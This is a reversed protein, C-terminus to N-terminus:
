IPLERQLDASGAPGGVLLEPGLDARLQVGRLMVPRNSEDIEIEGVVGRLRRTFTNRGVPRHDNHECWRAYVSYVSQFEQECEPGSECCLRVFAKMPSSAREMSEQIRRSRETMELAPKPMSWLDAYGTLGWVCIGQRELPLRARLGRDEAGTDRFIRVMKYVVLRGAFAGSNDLLKDPEDNCFIHFRLPIKIQTDAVRYMDRVAVRSQGSICKLHEVAISGEKLEGVHADPLLGVSKGVLPKIGYKDALHFFSTIGVSPEGCVAAIVDQWSDKGTGPVGVWLIIKHISRDAGLTDGLIRQASRIMEDRDALPWGQQDTTQGLLFKRFDPCLRAYLEETWGTRLAEQLWDVRLDFPRVAFTFLDPTNSLMRVQRAKLATMDLRGNRYVTWQAPDGREFALEDDRAFISRGWMPHGDETLNPALWCPAQSFSARVNGALSAIIEEVDHKRAQVPQIDDSTKLERKHLFGLLWDQVMQYLQVDREIERWEGREFWWFKGAWYLLTFRRCGPIVCRDLLFLRARDAPEPSICPRDYGEESWRYMAKANEVNDSWAPDIPPEDGSGAQTSVGEPPGSGGTGPSGGGEPARPAPGRGSHGEPRDERRAPGVPVARQARQRAKIAELAQVDGHLAAVARNAELDIGDLLAARVRELRAELAGDQCLVDNWDVGSLKGAPRYLDLVSRRAVEPMEIVAGPAAAATPFRTFVSLWPYRARHVAAAAEAARQGTPLRAISVADEVALGPAEAVLDQAYREVQDGKLLSKNLDGAFILTHVLPPEGAAKPTVLEAPVILPRMHESSLACWWAFGTAAQCSLSTEIGESVGLVGGPFQRPPHLMIVRGRAAGHMKKVSGWGPHEARKRHETPHLFTLHIGTQSIVPRGQRTIFEVIRGAMAPSHEHRWGRRVTEDDVKSDYCWPHFRLSPPVAGGVLRDVPIGRAELYGRVREHNEGKAGSKDAKECQEWIERARVKGQEKYAEIARKRPDITPAPLQEATAQLQGDDGVRGCFVGRIGKDRATAFAVAPGRLLKWGSKREWYELEDPKALGACLTPETCFAAVPRGAVIAVRCPDFGGCLPCTSPAHPAAPDCPVFALAPAIASAGPTVPAPGSPDPAAHPNDDM